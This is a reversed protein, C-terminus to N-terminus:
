LLGRISRPGDHIFAIDAETLRFWEGRVRRGRFTDHLASEAALMDWARLTSRLQLESASGCQLLKLRREPNKAAGIKYLGTGTCRILYVFGHRDDAPDPLLRARRLVRDVERVPAYAAHIADVRARQEVMRRKVEDALKGM